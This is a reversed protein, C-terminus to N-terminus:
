PFRVTFWHRGLDFHYSITFGYLDCIKKVIALGLGTSKQGENEKYFRLFLKDPNKISQIGPNSVELENTSLRVQIDGKGEQHKLANSLLNDLLVETLYEDMAVKVSEIELIQFPNSAIEEFSEIRDKLITSIDLPKVNKFQNNNLKAILILRKNLQKLRYVEKQVSTIQEFQEDSISNANIFTDIKAQIIALPTQIEHSIDETFQKLNQYDFSIKDTLTKVEKNLEDFEEIGSDELDLQSQSKLSFGKIRELNTFFPAWLKANRSKNVYFLFVFSALLIVMFSLIIAILFDDTDIVMARSTVKYFSGQSEVYETYEQFREMEEQFPDFILTDKRVPALLNPVSSVSLTPHVVLLEGTLNLHEIARANTSELQEQLEAKLLYQTYFFLIVTACIMLVGSTKLFTKSTKYLLKSTKREQAM